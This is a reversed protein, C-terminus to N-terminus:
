GLLEQEMTNKTPCFLRMWWNIQLSSHGCQRCGMERQKPDVEKEGKGWKTQTEVKRNESIM